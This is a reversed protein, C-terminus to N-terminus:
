CDTQRKSKLMRQQNKNNHLIRGQGGGMMKEKIEQDNSTYTSSQLSTKWVQAVRKGIRNFWIHDHLLLFSLDLCDEDDVVLRVSSVDVRKM